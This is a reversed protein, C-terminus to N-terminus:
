GNAYGAMGASGYQQQQYYQAYPHAQQGMAANAIVDTASPYYHAYDLVNGQDGLQPLNQSLSDGFQEEAKRKREIAAKPNPDETAWRVNMIENQDMSQCYMAEKAFEAAARFKYRVFAVGKSSLARVQEIEGWESFHRYATAELNGSTGLHGIYLTRNDKQFSGVTYLKSSYAWIKFRERGFVDVTMPIRDSELPLRHWYTCDSGKACCGRAFHICFMSAKSARTYGADTGIVCRTEAKEL